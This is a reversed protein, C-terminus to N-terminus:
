TCQTGLNAGDGGANSASSTPELMPASKSRFTSAFRRIKETLRKFGTRLRFDEREIRHRAEIERRLRVRMLRVYHPEPRPTPLM